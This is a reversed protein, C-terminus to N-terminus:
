DDNFVSGDLFKSFRFIAVRNVSDKRLASRGAATIHITESLRTKKASSVGCRLYSNDKLLRIDSYFRNLHEARIVAGKKAAILISRQTDTLM